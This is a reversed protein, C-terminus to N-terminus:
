QSEPIATAAVKNPAALEDNSAVNESDVPDDMIYFKADKFSKPAIKGLHNALVERYYSSIVAFKPVM